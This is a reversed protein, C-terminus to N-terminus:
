VGVYFQRGSFMCDGKLSFMDLSVVQYFNFEHVTCM